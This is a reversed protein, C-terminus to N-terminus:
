VYARGTSLWKVVEIVHRSFDNFGVSEDVRELGLLLWVPELTLVTRMTTM